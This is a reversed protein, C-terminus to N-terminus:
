QGCLTFDYGATRLARVAQRPSRWTKSPAYELVLYERMPVNQGAAPKVGAVPRSTMEIFRGIGHREHVVYDGPTLSLPDVANRRRRAKLKSGTVGRPAYTGRRGLIEGETFVALQEQSLLFGASAPVECVEIIGPSM